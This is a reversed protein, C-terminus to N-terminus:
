ICVIPVFCLSLIALTSWLEGNPRTSFLRLLIPACALMVGTIAAGALCGYFLLGPLWEVTGSRRRSEAYAPTFALSFAGFMFTALTLPFQQLGFYADTVATLGFRSAIFAERAFASCKFLAGTGLTLGIIIAAHARGRLLQKLKLLSMFDPDHIKCNRQPNRGTIAM